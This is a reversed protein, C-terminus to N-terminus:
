RLASKMFAAFDRPKRFGARDRAIEVGKQTLAIVVPVADVNYKKMVGKLKATDIRACVFRKSLTVVERDRFTYTDMAVSMQNTNTGFFLLVPRQVNPSGAIQIAYKDDRGTLWDIKQNSTAKPRLPDIDLAREQPSQRSKAIRAFFDQETEKAPEFLLVAERGGSDVSKVDIRWRQDENWAPFLMSRTADLFLMDAIKTTEPRLAWNDSTTYQGDSDDDLMVMRYKRGDMMEVVGERWGDRELQITTPRKNKVVMFFLVASYPEKGEKGFLTYPLDLKVDVFEVMKQDASFITRVRAELPAGDNTLDLDRNRDLYLLDYLGTKGSQDLAGYFPVGKTEGLAARFFLPERTKFDPIEFLFRPANTELLLSRARSYGLRAADSPHRPALTVKIEGKTTAKPLAEAKKEPAQEPEDDGIVTGILVGFALLSVLLRNAFM